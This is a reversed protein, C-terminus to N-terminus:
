KIIKKVKKFVLLEVDREKQLIDLDYVKLSKRLDDLTRLDDIPLTMTVTKNKSWGTENVLLFPKSSKKNGELFSRLFYNEQLINELVEGLGFLEFKKMRKGGDKSIDVRPYDSDNARSSAKDQNSTRILIYCPIKRKELVAITGLKQAFFRNLDELLYQRRKEDPIDIPVILEFCYKSKLFDKDTMRRKLLDESSSYNLTDIGKEFIVLDNLSSLPSALVDLGPQRWVANNFAALEYIYLLDQNIFYEIRVKNTSDTILNRHGTLENNYPTIFFGYSIPTTKLGGLLKYYPAKRDESLAPVTADGNLFTIDRGSLLDNIKEPNTNEHLGNLRIIGKGDIWVHNPLRRCPLSKFLSSTSDFYEHWNTGAYPYDTVISPLNPMKMKYQDRMREEIQNKTDFPNVLFIQIKDGFRKQLGEMYPFDAICNSCGTSWFDLIVLKGKFDSFRTKGTYNNVVTGLPIDPMTDGVKLGKAGYERFWEDNIKLVCDNEQAFVIQAILLCCM